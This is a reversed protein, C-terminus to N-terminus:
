TPSGWFNLNECFLGKNFRFDNIKVSEGVYIRLAYFAQKNLLVNLASILRTMM